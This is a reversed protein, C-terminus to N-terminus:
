AAVEHHERRAPPRPSRRSEPPVSLPASPSPSGVRVLPPPIRFGQPVAAAERVRAAEAVVATKELPAIPGMPETSKMPEAPEASEASEAPDEPEEAERATKAWGTRGAIERLLARWGFLAPLLGYLVFLHAYALAKLPGLGESREIRWYLVGFVLGPGFALLYAGLLWWWTQSHGLVAKCVVVLVTIGFSAMLLSAALLVYPTLIQWTSDARALGRQERAARGLLNLSQINGQFWRTRQRLLRRLSTVGQQHVAATPRFDNVWRTGNLRVGLDFDETLSKTWPREGLATLADLRAFQANGGMGVSHLHRRGRQFVETFIVFEMDQMRALLSSFRNNIRVGFQVAGIRRNGFARRAEDIAQSELRGDADVVGVVVDTRPDGGWQDRVRRLADNLAEGKGLRARPPVRRMVSVRPDPIARVVDATGDDSGDDIVLIRLKDDPIDLLRGVSAGIVGAENLCPMLIVVLIDKARSSGGRRPREIRPARRSAILLVLVYLLGAGIMIVAGWRGVLEVPDGDGVGIM